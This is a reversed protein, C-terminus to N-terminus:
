FLIFNVKTVLTPHNTKLQQLEYRLLTLPKESLKSQYFKTFIESLKYSSKVRGCPGCDTSNSGILSDTFGFQSKVKPKPILTDGTMDFSGLDEAKVQLRIKFMLNNMTEINLAKDRAAREM